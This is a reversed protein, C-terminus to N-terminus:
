CLDRAGPLRPCVRPARSASSAQGRHRGWGWCLSGLDTGPMARVQRVALLAWPTATRVSGASPDRWGLSVHACGQWRSVTTGCPVGPTVAAPQPAPPLVQPGRRTEGSAGSGLGAGAQHPDPWPRLLHSSSCLSLTSLHSHGGPFQGDGRDSVLAAAGAMPSLAVSTGSALSVAIVSSAGSGQAAPASAQPQTVPAVTPAM